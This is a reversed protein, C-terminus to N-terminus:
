GAICGSGSITGALSGVGSDVREGGGSVCVGRMWLLAGISMPSVHDDGAKM